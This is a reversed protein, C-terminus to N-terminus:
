RSALPSAHVREAEVNCTEALFTEQVRFPIKQPVPFM